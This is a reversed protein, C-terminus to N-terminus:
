NCTAQMVLEKITKVSPHDGVYKGYHAAIVTGNEDILFDASIRNSSGDQSIEKTFLQWGEMLTLPGLDTNVNPWDERFKKFKKRFSAAFNTSEIAYAKFHRLKLAHINYYLCKKKLTKENVWLSFFIRSPATLPDSDKNAWTEKYVKLAVSNLVDVVAVRLSRCELEWASAALQFKRRYFDFDMTM